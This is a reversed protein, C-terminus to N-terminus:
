IKPIDRIGELIEMVLLETVDGSAELNLTILVVVPVELIFIKIGDELSIQATILCTLCTLKSVEELATGILQCSQVNFVQLKRM